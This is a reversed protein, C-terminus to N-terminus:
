VKELILIPHRCVLLRMLGYGYRSHSHLPLFDIPFINNKVNKGGNKEFYHDFSWSYIVVGSGDLQGFVM